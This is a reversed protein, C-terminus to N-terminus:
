RPVLKMRRKTNQAHDHLQAMEHKRWRDFDARSFTPHADLRPLIEPIPYTGAKLRRMITRPNRQTEAALQKLTMLDSKDSM